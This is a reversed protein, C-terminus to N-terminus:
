EGHVGETAAPNQTGQSPRLRIQARRNLKLNRRGTSEVFKTLGPKEAAAGGWLARALKGGSL